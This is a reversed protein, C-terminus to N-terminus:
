SMCAVLPRGAIIYLGSSVGFRSELFDQDDRSLDGYWCNVLHACRRNASTTTRTVLVDILGIKAM